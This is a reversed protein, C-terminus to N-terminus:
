FQCNGNSSNKGICNVPLNGSAQLVLLQINTFGCFAFVGWANIAYHMVGPDRDGSAVDRFLKRDTTTTRRGAVAGRKLM